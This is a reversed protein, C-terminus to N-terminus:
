LSKKVKLSVLIKSVSLHTLFAFFFLGLFLSIDLQHKLAYVLCVGFASDSKDLFTTLWPHKESREGAKIGLKRKFWSNPLECFMYTFGLIAGILFAEIGQHSKSLVSYFLGSTLTVFLLGRYTKNEGFLNTHIPKSLFSLVNFKVVFMHLVNSCILPLYLEIAHSIM